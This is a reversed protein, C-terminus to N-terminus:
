RLDFQPRPRREIGHVDITPMQQGVIRIPQQVHKAHGRAQRRGGFRQAAPFRGVVLQASMERSVIQRRARQRERVASVLRELRAAVCDDALQRLALGLDAVTVQTSKRFLQEIPQARSL